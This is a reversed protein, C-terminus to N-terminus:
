ATAKVYYKKSGKVLRVTYNGSRTITLPRLTISGKSTSKASGMSKWAGGIAIQAKYSTQKAVGSLRIRTPQDLYMAAYVAKKTSTAAKTVRTQKVGPPSNSTSLYVGNGLSTGPSAYTFGSVRSATASGVTVVVTVAGANGAPTKVTISTASAVVLSTGANGGFTVSTAGTFNTGSIVVTTGGTLPGSSPSVSTITPAASASGITITQTTSTLGTSAYTITYTGAPATIGLNTFGAVGSVAAISTTGILTAGTSVSASVTATSSTIFNGGADQIGIRPQTTFAVGSTTGAATVSLGLKSATGIIPSVVATASTLGTSAFTITYATGITGTIGLNTFTALGNVAAVSATGVLTAGTSVTATVTATSTLVRTGSADNISITPQTTFAAGSIPGAPATVVALATAAGVIAITQSAPSFAGSTFTLTYTTGATGTLGLITYTAVGAVAAVAVTGVLTGGASVTATVTATSSTLNGASDLIKVVPQTTFASGSVAGAASTTISLQAASGAAAITVSQTAVTLAGSYYTITYATGVTGVIGLDTFTAVGGSTTKSTSGVLSGGGSVSAYVTVVTTDTVNDNDKLTVVPQVGFASGSTITASSAPTTLVVKTAAAAQAPSAPLVVATAVLAVGLVPAVLRRTVGPMRGM